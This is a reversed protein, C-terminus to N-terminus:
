VLVEELMGGKCVNKMGENDEISTRVVHLFITRLHLRSNDHKAVNAMLDEGQAMLRLYGRLGGLITSWSEMEYSPMLIM